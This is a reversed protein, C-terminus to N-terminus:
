FATGKSPGYLKKLNNEGFDPSFETNPQGKQSVPLQPNSPPTIGNNGLSLQGTGNGLAPNNNGFPSGGGFAHYMGDDQPENFLGQKGNPNRTRSLAQLNPNYM